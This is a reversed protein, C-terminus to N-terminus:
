NQEQKSKLYTFLYTEQLESHLCNYDDHTIESDEAIDLFSDAIEDFRTLIEEKKISYRKLEEDVKKILCFSSKVIEKTKVEDSKVLYSMALELISLYQGVSRGSEKEILNKFVTNKYSNIINLVSEQNKFGYNEIKTIVEGTGSDYGKQFEINLNEKLSTPVEQNSNIRDVISMKNGGFM